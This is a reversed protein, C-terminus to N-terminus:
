DGGANELRRLLQVDQDSDSADHWVCSSFSIGEFASCRAIDWAGLLCVAALRLATVFLNGVNLSVVQLIRLDIVNEVVSLVVFRFLVCRNTCSSSDHRSVVSQMKRRRM